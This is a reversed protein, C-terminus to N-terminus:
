HACDPTGLKRSEPFFTAPMRWKPHNIFLLIHVRSDSIYLFCIIIWHMYMALTPGSKSHLSNHSNLYCIHSNIHFHLTIINNVNRRSKWMSHLDRSLKDCYLQHRRPSECWTYHSHHWIIIIYMCTHTYVHMYTWIHTCMCTYM